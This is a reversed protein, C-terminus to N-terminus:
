TKKVLYRGIDKIDLSEEVAGQEVAAKPMGYIVCTKRSQAITHGGGDRIAKMGEVGDKGMGTLLVGISRSGYTRAVSLMMANISPNNYERFKKSNFSISANSSRKGKDVIMNADGPAVIVMGPKPVMGKAGVVVNLPSLNNLRHVFPGIFNGPMHQAIVVPVALSGPLASIIHEIATPGGTSAGIAIIDYDGSKAPKRGNGPATRGPLEPVATPKAKAVSKVKKILEEDLQRMKSGGKVPKNIYDVAGHRLADFIPELNSNGMASLILIPCPNEHMIKQVAYMGDYNDMMLDLVVVDPKLNKVKEAAERGDVASGIVFLDSDEALIDSILLRMFASDDVVLVNLKRNTM